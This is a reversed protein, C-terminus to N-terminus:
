AAEPDHFHSVKVKGFTARYQDVFAAFEPYRRRNEAAAAERTANRTTEDARARAAIAAAREAPTM